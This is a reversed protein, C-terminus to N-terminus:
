EDGEDDDDNDDEDDTTARSRSRRITPAVQCTDCFHTSRQALKIRKIPQECGPCPQSTKRFVGIENQFSGKEGDPKTYTSISAGERAIGLQLVHQIGAHLRACEEDTLTNASREPHLRAKFLAEDVYINGLGCVVGDQALLLPKLMTSRRRLGTQLVDVTFTPELPEPALKAFLTHDPPLFHITGFKRTDRFFLSTGNDLKWRGHVYKDDEPTVTKACFLHGSMRLHIILSWLSQMGIVIYKARRTVSQVTQGKISKAFEAVSAPAKINKEWDTEFSKITRGILPKRLARVVTEVRQPASKSFLFRDTGDEKESVCLLLWL